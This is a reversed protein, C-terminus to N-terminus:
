TIHMYLNNDDFSEQLDKKTFRREFLLNIKLNFVYLVNTLRCEDDKVKIIMTECQNSHLIRKEIKITRKKISIFSKNFFRFQNIMYFSVDIDAIWNSKFIKNILKKFLAVIKKMNEENNFNVDIFSDSNMSFIEVNYTKQKNEKNKNTKIKERNRKVFKKLKRLLDCNKIRYDDDCLFCEKRSRDIKFEDNINRNHSFSSSRRQSVRYTFHQNERNQDQENKRNNNKVWM